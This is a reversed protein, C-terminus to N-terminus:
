NLASSEHEPNEAGCPSNKQFQKLIVIKSTPSLAACHLAPSGFWEASLAICRRVLFIAASVSLACLCVTTVVTANRPALLGFSCFILALFDSGGAM